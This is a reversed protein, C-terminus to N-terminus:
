EHYSTGREDACVRDDRNHMERAVCMRIVVGPGIPRLSYPPLAAVAFLLAIRPLSVCPRRFPVFRIGRHRV